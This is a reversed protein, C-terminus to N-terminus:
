VLAKIKKVSFDYHIYNRTAENQQELTMFNESPNFVSNQYCYMRYNYLSELVKAPYPVVDHNFSAKHVHECVNHLNERLHMALKLYKNYESRVTGYNKEDYVRNAALVIFKELSEKILNLYNSKYTIDSLLITEKFTSSDKLIEQAPINNISNIAYEIENTNIKCRNYREFHNVIMTSLKSHDMNQMIIINELTTNYEMQDLFNQISKNIATM